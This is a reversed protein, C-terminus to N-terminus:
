LCVVCAVAVTGAKQLIFLLLLEKKRNKGAGIFIDALDLPGLCKVIKPYFQQVTLFWQVLCVVHVGDSGPLSPTRPPWRRAQAVDLVM